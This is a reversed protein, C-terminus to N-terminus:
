RHLRDYVALLERYEALDVTSLGTPTRIALPRIAIGGRAHFDGFVRLYAPLLLGALDDAIQNVCAEHFAGHNRYSVLYLKLSKSEVCRDKPIYDIRLTGYDPQATVPCLSTFELCDLGIVYPVAHPNAFAELLRPDASDYRYQTDKEGLHSLGDVM